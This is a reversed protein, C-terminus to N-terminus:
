KSTSKPIPFFARTREILKKYEPRDGMIRDTMPSGTVGALMYTNVLPGVITWWIGPCAAVAVLYMGWWVTTTGFYNPHRSYTWVGTNLYRGKNSPDAKFAQLQADAVTEFYFGVGFVLMGIATFLNFDGSVDRAAAIGWVSPIGVIAIVLTQSHMVAFFSKWWYGRFLKEKFSIYRPDGGIPTKVLRRWRLGLYVGLRCGHLSVMLLLIAATQSHAGSLLFAIWGPIAYGFGYYGDMLSHNGQVLGISWILTVVAFTYALCVVFIGLNTGLDIGLKALQETM